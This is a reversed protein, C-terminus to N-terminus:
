NHKHYFILIWESFINGLRKSIKKYIIKCKLKNFYIFYNFSNLIVKNVDIKNQKINNMDDIRKGDCYEM